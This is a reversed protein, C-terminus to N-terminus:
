SAATIWLRAQPAEATSFVRMTGPVAFSFLRTAHKIWDIDTIVAVREWRFYHEMGVKFDEWTAGADVGTFDPGAEYLLRVKEHSKLAKELAPILVRDYDERTVQGRCSVAVVNGPFGKLREIM